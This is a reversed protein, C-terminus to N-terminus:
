EPRISGSTDSFPPFPIISHGRIRAAAAWCHRLVVGIVLQLGEDEIDDALAPPIESFGLTKAWISCDEVLISTPHYAWFCKDFGLVSFLYLYRRAM